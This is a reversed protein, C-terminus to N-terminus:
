YRLSLTFLHHHIQLIDIFGKFISDSATLNTEKAGGGLGEREVWRRTSTSDRVHFVIPLVLPNVFVILFLVIVVRCTAEITVKAVILKWIAFIFIYFQM